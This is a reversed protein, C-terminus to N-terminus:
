LNRLAADSQINRWICENFHFSCGLIGAAPFALELERIMAVKFDVHVIQAHFGDIASVVVDLLRRYTASSKAPLLSFVAPVTKGEPLKVHFTYLQHFVAPCVKFTGDVFLEDCEKLLTLNSATAFIILRNVDGEGSDYFLFAENQSTM